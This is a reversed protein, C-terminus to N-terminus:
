SALVRAPTMPLTRVRRGTAAFVANGIAAGMTGIAPEGAGLAPQDPRNILITEIVPVENFRIVRYQPATTGPPPQWLLTTIADGSYHVEEHLTRSIGQIVNGEIQHRLGDPNIILGCDHAVVVRQVRITGDPDVKVEVYTAVYASVLEYQQYAIGAGVGSVGRPRSSWAPQLAQLVARGRDDPMADTRLQLPDFGGAAALEDLFSENAFTNSFGGLSRLASSRPLLWTLPAQPLTSTASKTVFTKVLHAELRQNPFDYTVESNRGSANGANGPLPDPLYGTLHGAILSGANNTSPRANHTAAYLKHLWGTVGSGDWSGQMDHAQAPGLPEWGHENQRTWQVRVPKGVAQSLLAADAAVDDAGNHGYCGAAETYLVHIATPTLGLLKSLAGRLNNVGQTGSWITAQVGDSDPASRVDAVATSAGVAAHMQFPTFYQASLVSSTSAFTGDVNGINQEVSIKYQNAPDRLASPLSSEAILPVGANWTVTLGTTPNAARAAAWESTAVVGVFNGKQVVQVFGPIAQARALNSISAFTANRGSPRVVRGHLMGPLTVDTTYRFRAGAKDPLDVRPADTGVLRYRAPDVQPANPDLTVVTNTQGLLEQYSVSTNTNAIEFHGKSAVLTEPDADLYSAAMALLAAYATAAAQRLPIAGQQITKSGATFGQNPDLITDGQVFEIDAVELRLEEAVIQSLATQIGTGLEVKGSYITYAAPTLILWAETPSGPASPNIRLQGNPNAASARTGRGLFTFAVVLAGSGALFNRRSLGSPGHVDPTPAPQTSSVKIHATM